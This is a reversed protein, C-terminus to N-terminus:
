RNFNSSIQCFYQEHLEEHLSLRLISNEVLSNQSVILNRMFAIKEFIETKAFNNKFILTLLQLSHAFEYSFRISLNQTLWIFEIEIMWTAM